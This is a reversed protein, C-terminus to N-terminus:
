KLTTIVSRLMTTLSPALAARPADTMKRTTLRLVEVAFTEKRPLSLAGIAGL